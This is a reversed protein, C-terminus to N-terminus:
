PIGKKLKAITMDSIMDATLIEDPCHRWHITTINGSRSTTDQKIYRYKNGQYIINSNGPLLKWGYATYGENSIGILRVM